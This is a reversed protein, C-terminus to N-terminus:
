AEMKDHGEALAMIAGFLEKEEQSAEYGPQTIKKMWAPAAEKFLDFAPMDLIRVKIEMEAM